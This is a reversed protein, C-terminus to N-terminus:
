ALSRTAVPGPAATRDVYSEAFRVLEGAVDIGSARELEELGPAPNVEVVMPGRKSEVLDVGAIDLELIEAARIALARFARTLEVSQAERPKHLHTRFEGLRTVRKVAGIVRGGVVYARLERGRAEPVYQQLLINKGAEWFSEVISVIAHGEVAVIAGVNQTGQLLRLTVPPGGLLQVKRPLEEPRRALLTRPVELGAAALVRLSRFRDRANTIADPRNLCPVRLSEFCQLTSITFESPSAGLRPIALGVNLLRRSKYYIVPRTSGELVLSCDEPDIAHCRHGRARAAQILRETSYSRSRKSLIVIKM